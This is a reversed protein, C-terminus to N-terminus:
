GQVRTRFPSAMVTERGTMEPGLDGALEGVIRTTFM